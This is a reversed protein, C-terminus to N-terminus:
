PVIISIFYTVVQIVKILLQQQLEKVELHILCLIFDLFFRVIMVLPDNVFNMFFLILYYWSQRLGLSRGFHPHLLRRCYRGSVIKLLVLRPLLLAEVKVLGNWNRNWEGLNLEGACHCTSEIWRLNSFASVLLISLIKHYCKVQAMERRLLGCLNMPLSTAMPDM